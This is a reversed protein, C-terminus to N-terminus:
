LHRTFFEIFSIVDQFKTPTRIEPFPMAKGVLFSDAQRLTRGRALGGGSQWMFCLAGVAALAPPHWVGRAYQLTSAVGGSVPQLADLRDGLAPIPKCASVTRRAATGLLSAM